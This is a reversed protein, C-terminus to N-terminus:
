NTKHIYRKSQKTIVMQISDSDDDGDSNSNTSYTVISQKQKM